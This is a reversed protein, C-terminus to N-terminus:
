KRESEIENLLSIYNHVYKESTLHNEFYERNKKGLAAREEAPMNKIKDLLNCAEEITDYLLVGDVGAKEFYKNGGTRSAIVIKGLALVEIM